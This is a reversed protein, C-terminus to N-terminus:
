ISITTVGLSSIHGIGPGGVKVFSHEESTFDNSWMLEVEEEPHESLTTKYPSRFYRFQANHLYSNIAEEACAYPRMGVLTIM